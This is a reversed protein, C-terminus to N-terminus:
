KKFRGVCAAVEDFVARQEAETLLHHLPLALLNDALFHSNALEGVAPVGKAVPERDVAYTGIQVEIGLERVSGLVLDRLGPQQFAICYAQYNPVAGAPIKPTQAWDVDGFL